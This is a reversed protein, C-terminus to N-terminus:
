YPLWPDDNAVLPMRPTYLEWESYPISTTFMMGDKQSLVMEEM